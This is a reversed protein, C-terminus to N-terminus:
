SLAGSGGAAEHQAGWARSGPRHTRPTGARRKILSTAREVLRVFHEWAQERTQHYPEFVVPRDERWNQFDWDVIREKLASFLQTKPYPVFNYLNYLWVHDATLDLFDLTSSQSDVTENPLGGLVNL